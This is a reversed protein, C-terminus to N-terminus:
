QRDSVTVTLTSIYGFDVVVLVGVIGVVVVVKESKNLAFSNLLSCEIVEKSALINYFSPETNPLNFNVASM